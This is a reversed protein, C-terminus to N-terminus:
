SKVTLNVRQCMQQHGALAAARSTYRVMEGDLAGGFVLTEWLVPPGDGWQHDLGLFVTSVRVGDPGAREDRDQAILREGTDKTAEFWLGWAVVDACPRPEGNADLIYYMGSNRSSM